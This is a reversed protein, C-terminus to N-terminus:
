KQTNCTALSGRLAEDPLIWSQLKLAEGMCVAKNFKKKKQKTKNTQKREEGPNTDTTVRPLLHPAVFANVRPQRDRGVEQNLEDGPYM